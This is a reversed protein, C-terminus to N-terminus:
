RKVLMWLIKTKESLNKTYHPTGEPNYLFDGEGLIYEGDETVFLAKGSVVYAFEEYDHKSYGEEPLRVQPSLTVVGVRLKDELNLLEVPKDLASDWTEETLRLVKPKGVM